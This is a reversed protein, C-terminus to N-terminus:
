PRSCAFYTWAAQASLRRAFFDRLGRQILRIRDACVDPGAPVGEIKAVGGIWGLIGEDYISLATAWEEVDVDVLRTTVEDVTLGAGFLMDNYVEVSRPLPFYRRRLAVHASLRLPDELVARYRAYQPERSVAEVAFAHIAEVTDHIIWPARPGEAGTVNGSNIFVRGGPRVVRAWATFTTPLDHYLHVANTSVIADVGRGVLSPPLVEDLCDLRDETPRYHLVRFAVGPHDRFRELPVRLFRPSSDVLVLRLTPRVALLRDALIGTGASYDVVVGDEDINDLIQEVTLDLNHYWGQDALADYCMGAESLPESTWPEAPIRVLDEPWTTHVTTPTM